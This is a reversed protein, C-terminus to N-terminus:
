EIEQLIRGLKDVARAWLKRAADASCNRRAGIEAFAAGQWTREILASRWPEELRQLAMRARRQDEQEALAAGPTLGGDSVRGLAQEWAEGSLERDILRQQTQCYHRVCNALRHDLIGGLWGYFEKENNGRFQGFSRQAEVYTDQVLDSAGVKARLRDDLAENAITLLYKRGAEFAKGLASQSGDRAELLWRDINSSSGNNQERTSPERPTSSVSGDM